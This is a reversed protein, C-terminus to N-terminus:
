INRRLLYLRAYTATVLSLAIIAIIALLVPMQAAPAKNAALDIRKTTTTTDSDTATGSPASGAALGEHLASGIRTVSGADPGAGGFGGGGPNPVVECPVCEGTATSTGGNGGAPVTTSDVPVSPVVNPISTLSPLPLTPAAIPSLTIGIPPLGSASASIGVGPLEISAGCLAAQDTVHVKGTYTLSVGGSLSTTTPSLPITLLGVHVATATWKYPHDGTSLGTITTANTTTVTVKTPTSSAPDIILTGDLGTIGSTSVSLGLLNLSVLSTKLNLAGGPPLYIDGGGISTSCNSTTVGTVSFTANVTPTSAHAGQMAILGASAAIAVGLAGAVWRLGFRSTPREQRRGPM